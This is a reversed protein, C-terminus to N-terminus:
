KDKKEILNQKLLILENQTNKLIQKTTKLSDQLTENNKSLTNKESDFKNSGFDKGFYFAGVISSFIIPLLLFWNIREWLNKRKKCKDLEKSLSEIQSTDETKVIDSKQNAEMIELEEIRTNIFNILERKGKEWYDIDNNIFQRPPIKLSINGLHVHYITKSPFAKDLYLRIKNIIDDLEANDDRKISKLRELLKIFKEKLM